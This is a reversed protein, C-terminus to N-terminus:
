CNAQSALSLRQVDPPVEFAIVRPEAIGPRLVTSFTPLGNERALDNQLDFFIDFGINGEHNRNREDVLKFAPTVSRYPGVDANTLNTMTVFVVAWMANGRADRGTVTRQWAADTIEAQFAIGQEACVRASQGILPQVPNTIVPTPRVAALAAILEDANAATPGDRLTGLVNASDPAPILRIKAGSGVAYITGDNARLFAGEPAGPQALSRSGGVVIVVLAALSVIVALNRRMM